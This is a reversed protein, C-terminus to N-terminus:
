NLERWLIKVVSTSIEQKQHGMNLHKGFKISRHKFYSM